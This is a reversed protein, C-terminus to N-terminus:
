GSRRARARGMRPADAHTRRALMAGNLGRGMRPQQATWLHEGRVYPLHHAGSAPHVRAGAGGKHGRAPHVNLHPVTPFTLAAAQLAFHPLLGLPPYVQAVPAAKTAVPPTSKWTPHTTPPTLNAACVTPPSHNSPHPHPVSLTQSACSPAPSGDAPSVLLGAPKDDPQVVHLEVHRVSPLARAASLAQGADGQLHLRPSRIPTCQACAALVM